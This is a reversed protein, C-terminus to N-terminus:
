PAYMYTTQDIKICESDLKGRRRLGNLRSPSIGLLVAKETSNIYGKASLHEKLTPIGYTRAIFRVILTTFSGGQGSKYGAENLLDAIKFAPCVTSKKRIFDIVEVPTATKVWVPKPNECELVRTAGTKFLVGLTTNDTGKTITVNEILCRLIRKKDQIRTDSSHWTKRLDEPLESLNLVSCKSSAAAKERNHRNLEEEAKALDSIRENWLRELEFAVLRNLPDVSMYRKKALDAEYRAREVQMLFYNDSAIKRRRAEQEIEVANSIALPTLSELIMDSIAEDLAAGRVSQCRRVGTGHCDLGCLYYHIKLTGDGSINYANRMKRGCKGCVALGQLLAAGERPVSNGARPCNAKLKEINSYYEGLSIYGEHHDEIRVIWEDEPKTIRKKKDVTRILEKQGYAYVGAYVPNHLISLAKAASLAKWHIEGGGYGLSSDVPFKYGNKRFFVAIGRSTGVRRFTDFFLQVAGSIDANPDKVIRGSGDYVYGAPLYIKLEGRKAKNLLGGRMRERMFHLEAEGITGKLGLLIRDNFDNPDYIGDADILLTRTIACFEMLRGWDSSNRSLRSCEICAVAGVEGDGVDATLQKFGDRGVTSAGSQGLDCDIVTISDELWGLSILRDKLAYQRVTSESNEYVQKMTSQRIYLIARRKLHFANIKQSVEM